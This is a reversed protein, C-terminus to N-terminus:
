KFALIALTIFLGILNIESLTNWFKTQALVTKIFEKCNGLCQLLFNISNPMFNENRGFVPFFEYEKWGRM